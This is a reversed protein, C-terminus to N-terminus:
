NTTANERHIRVKPPVKHPIFCAIVISSFLVRGITVRCVFFSIHKSETHKSPVSNM